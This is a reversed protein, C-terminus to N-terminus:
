LRSQTVQKFSPITNYTAHNNDNNVIERSGIM